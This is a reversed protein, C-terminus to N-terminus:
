WWSHTVRTTNIHAETGPKLEGEPDLKTMKKLDNSHQCFEIGVGTFTANAIPTPSERRWLRWGGKIGEYEYILNSPKGDQEFGGLHVLRTNGNYTTLAGGLPAKRHDSKMRHWTQEPWKFIATCPSQDFAEVYPIVVEVQDM